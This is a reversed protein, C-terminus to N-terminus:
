GVCHVETGRQPPTCARFSSPCAEGKLPPTTSEVYVNYTVLFINDELREIKALEYILTTDYELCQQWMLPIDAVEEAFAALVEVTNSALEVDVVSRYYTQREYRHEELAWRVKCTIAKSVLDMLDDANTVVDKQIM